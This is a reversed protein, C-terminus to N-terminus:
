VLKFRKPLNDATEMLLTGRKLFNYLEISSYRVTGDSCHPEKLPKPSVIFYSVVAEHNFGPSVKSCYWPESKQPKLKSSAHPLYCDGVM